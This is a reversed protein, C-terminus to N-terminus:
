RITVLKWPDVGVYINGVNASPFTEQSEMMVQAMSVGPQGGYLLRM